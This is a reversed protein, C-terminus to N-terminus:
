VTSVKDAITTDDNLQLGQCAESVSFLGLDDVMELSGAEFSAQKEVETGDRQVVLAEGM